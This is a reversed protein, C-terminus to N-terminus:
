DGVTAGASIDAATGTLIEEEPTIQYYYEMIDNGVEAAYTSSYGNAIRIAFAVQPSDSPAFGVFLAHDPHTESQQATGTKGFLKVDSANLKTFLNSHAVSVVNRMGNHVANWTSPAVDTMTNLVSPEYDKVTKGDVSTIKDILSLKYVTGKNAVATIYRALQSTTYNNTGQGIASPVSSKDSIQPESEPIELGSTEGLGFEMAYKKLTDTGLDSSYYANTAGGEANDSGIQSLGNDKLSMRYGVEYFFSNCSNEIAGEVNLSGHAMPYIWCKPNPSVKKYIGHCPLYTNNDIVGETLGAVAVMPKYTSGPATKEQTANNYFPRAQDTVLKNYYNSDMTNALRNNDYGPYSVCALVEGSTTDTMVLSGTCPELALQGPTIEM